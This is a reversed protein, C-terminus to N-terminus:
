KLVEATKTSILSNALPAIGIFYEDDDLLERDGELYCTQLVAEYAALPDNQLLTMAYSVERRNPKRFYAVKKDAEIHIAVVKEKRQKELEAKKAAVEELFKNM